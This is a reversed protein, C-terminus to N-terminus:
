TVNLVRVKDHDQLPIHSLNINRHCVHQKDTYTRTNADLDVHEFASVLVADVNPIGQLEEVPYPHGLARGNHTPNDADQWSMNRKRNQKAQNQTSNRYWTQVMSCHMEETIAGALAQTQAM